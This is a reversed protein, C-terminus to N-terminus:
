PTDAVSKKASLCLLFFSARALWISPWPRLDLAGGLERLGFLPGPGLRALLTPTLLTVIPSAVPEPHTALKFRENYRVARVVGAAKAFDFM